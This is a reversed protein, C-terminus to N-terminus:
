KAERLAKGAAAALLRKEDETYPNLRADRTLIEHIRRDLATEIKPEDVTVTGAAYGGAERIAKLIVAIEEPTNDPRIDNIDVPAGQVRALVAMAAQIEEKTPEAM